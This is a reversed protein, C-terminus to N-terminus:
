GSVPGLEHRHRWVVAAGLLGGSALAVGVVLFGAIDALGMRYIEMLSLGILAPFFGVVTAVGMGAMGAPVSWRSRRPLLWAGAVAVFGGAVSLALPPVDVYQLAGVAEGEPIGDGVGPEGEVPAPGLRREADEQSFVLTTGSLGAGVYSAATVGVWVLLLTAVLGLALRVIGVSRPLQRTPVQITTRSATM